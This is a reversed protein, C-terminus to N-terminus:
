GGKKWCEAIVYGSTQAILSYGTSAGPIQFSRVGLVPQNIASSSTSTGTSPVAAGTSNLNAFFNLQANATTLGTLRLMQTGTSFDIAQATGGALLYTQVTDPPVEVGDTPHLSGIGRM